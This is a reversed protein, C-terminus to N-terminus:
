YKYEISKADVTRGKAIFQIKSKYNCTIQVILSAPRDYVGTKNTISTVLEYVGKSVERIANWPLEVNEFTINKSDLEEQSTAKIDIKPRGLVGVYNKGTARIPIRFEEGCLYILPEDYDLLDALDEQTLATIRANNIIKDDRTKNQLIARKEKIREAFEPDLIEFSNINFVACIKQPLQPDNKDLAELAEVEDDYYRDELWEILQGTQFYKIIKDLNFHKQLEKIDHVEVGEAMELAFKIKRAMM